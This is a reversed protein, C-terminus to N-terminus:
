KSQYTKKLEKLSQDKCDEISLHLISPSRRGRWYAKALSRWLFPRFLGYSLSLLCPISRNGNGLLFAQMRLEDASNMEYDLLLHKLDHEKFRPLMRLNQRDLLDALERGVTGSEMNRLEAHLVDYPGMDHTNQLIWAIFSFRLYQAYIRKCCIVFRRIYWFVSLGRLPKIIKIIM